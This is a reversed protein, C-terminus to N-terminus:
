VIELVKVFHSDKYPINRSDPDSEQQQYQSFSSRAEPVPGVDAGGRSSIKTKPVSDALDNSILGHRFHCYCSPEMSGKTYQAEKRSALSVGLRGEPHAEGDHVYVDCTDSM